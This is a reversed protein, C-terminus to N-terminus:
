VMCAATNPPSKLVKYIQNTNTSTVLVKLLTGFVWVVPFAVTNKAIPEFDSKRGVVTSLNMEPNQPARVRSRYGSAQINHAECFQQVRVVRQMNRPQEYAYRSIEM